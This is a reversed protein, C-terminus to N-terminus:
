GIQGIPRIMQGRMLETEDGNEIGDLDSSAEATQVM